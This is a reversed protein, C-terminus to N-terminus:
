VYILRGPCDPGKGICQIRDTLEEGCNGSSDGQSIYNRNRTRYYFTLLMNSTWIYTVISIEYYDSVKSYTTMTSIGPDLMAIPHVNLGNVGNLYMVPQHQAPFIVKPNNTGPKNHYSM